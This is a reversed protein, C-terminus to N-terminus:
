SSSQIRRILTTTSSGGLYPLSRVSGGHALVFDAGVIQSVPWDGGKALVDPRIARIVQAPDLEEFTVVLDVAALAALVAAREPAPVIPRGAGKLTRVSADSNIAVILLDGLTRAQELYRTHGHHLLDFCGNTFVVRRGAAQARRVARVAATLSKVKTKALVPRDFRAARKERSRATDTRRTTEATM